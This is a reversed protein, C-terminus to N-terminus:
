VSHQHVRLAVFFPFWTTIKISFENHNHTVSIHVLGSLNHVEHNTSNCAAKKIDATSM